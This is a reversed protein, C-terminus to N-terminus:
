RKARWIKVPCAHRSPNSSTEYGAFQIVGDKIARRVVNGWPSGNSPPLGNSEAYARLLEVTFEQHEAAYSCLCAYAADAWGTEHREQAGASRDMGEEALARGNKVMRRHRRGLDDLPDLAM